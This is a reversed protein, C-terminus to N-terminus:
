KGFKRFLTNQNLYPIVARYIRHAIMKYGDSNPHIFDSKLKPNTIIGSFISPIYIAAKERALNYFASRYETLIMGTSIDAIAVMAGKAQIKDVMERVNNVTVKHPVSRLFDNGGFEIIVLLPKRELVDSDVRKLGETSTDGDIGANIVPIDTMKALVSPYDEGSNAGYGFTISDGFCIINEGRSYLNKIERKACGGLLTTLLLALLIIKLQLSYAAGRSREADKTLIDQAQRLILQLSNKKM